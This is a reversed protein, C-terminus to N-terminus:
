RVVQFVMDRHVAGQPRGIRFRALGDDEVSVPFESWTGMDGRITLSQGRLREGGADIREVFMMNPSGQFTTVGARTRGIELASVMGRVTITTGARGRVAFYRQERYLHDTFSYFGPELMETENVTAGGAVRTIPSPFLQVQDRELIFTTSSELARGIGQTLDPADQADFYQGGGATALAALAAADVANVGLGVTHIVVELGSARLQRAVAEPDGGCSEVGDSLLVIVGAVGERQLDAGAEQLSRAIPTHGKPALANARAVIETANGPAPVLMRETDTCGAAKDDVGIRHGYVRLGIPIDAPFTGLAQTLAERALEIKARGGVQGWMSNSVDLIIEVQGPRGTAAPQAGSAAVDPMAAGTAEAFTTDDFARSYTGGTVLAIGALQHSIDEGLSITHIRIGNAEARAVGVPDEGCTEDGDGIILLEHTPAPNARLDELAARMSHVLPTAGDWRVSGLVGDWPPRAFPAVDVALRTAGCEDDGPGEGMLRLGVVTGAPLSEMTSLLGRVALDNKVGGTVEEKMSGSVDLLVMLARSPQAQAAQAFAMGTPLWVAVVAIAKMVSRM